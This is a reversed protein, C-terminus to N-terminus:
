LADEIEFYFHFHTCCKPNFATECNPCQNNCNFYDAITLEVKCNGCLIAQVDREQKKWQKVQHM